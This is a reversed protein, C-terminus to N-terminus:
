EYILEYKKTPFLDLGYIFSLVDKENKKLKNLFQTIIDLKDIQQVYVAM